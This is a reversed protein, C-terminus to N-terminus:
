KDSTCNNAVKCIKMIEGKMTSKAAAVNTEWIQLGREIEVGGTATLVACDHNFLRAGALERRLLVDTDLQVWDSLSSKTPRKHLTPHKAEIIGTLNVM